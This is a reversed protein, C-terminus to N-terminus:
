LGVASAGAAPRGRHRGTAAPRQDDRTMSPGPGCALANCRGGPDSRPASPLAHSPRRTEGWCPAPPRLGAWVAPSRGRPQSREGQGAGGRQGPSRAQPWRVCPGGVRALMPASSTWWSSGTGRLLALPPGPLLASGLEDRPSATAPPTRRQGSSPPLTPSSTLLPPCRAQEPGREARVPHRGALQGECVAAPERRALAPGPALRAQSPPLRPIPPQGGCPKALPRLCYVYGGVHRSAQDGARARAVDDGAVGPGTVAARAPVETTDVCATGHQRRQPGPARQRPPTPPPTRAPSRINPTAEAPTPLRARPAGRRLGGAASSPTRARCGLRVPAVCWRHCREVERVREPMMVPM